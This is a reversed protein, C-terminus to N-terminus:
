YLMLMTKGLRRDHGRGEDRYDTKPLLAHYLGECIVHLFALIQVEKQNSLFVIRIIQATRIPWFAAM